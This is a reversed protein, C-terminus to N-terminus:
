SSIPAQCNDSRGYNWLILLLVGGVVISPGEIVTWLWPMSATLDTFLIVTGLFLNVVGLLGVLPWYRQVNTSVFLVVLGHACYMASITRALYEVIPEQPLRGLGAWAHIGDMWSWPLFIAFFSLCILSGMLRLLWKATVMARNM